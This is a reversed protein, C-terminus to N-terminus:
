SIPFRITFKSGKDVESDVTLRCGMADCLQLALPLGLGAGGNTRRPTGDLQEFPMFVRDLQEGPIGPGSDAVILRSPCNTAADTLLTVKVSGSVTFKVANDVLHRVVQEFRIADLVIPEASEQLVALLRLGKASSIPRYHKVVRSVVDVVNTEAPALELNGQEIRSQDLVNEVLRLLEEGSARVRSLLHIDEPRQNGAQNNELLRSFGIVANLPTRLEHSMRALFEERSRQAEKLARSAEQAIALAVFLDHPVPTLTSTM